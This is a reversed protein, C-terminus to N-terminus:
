GTSKLLISSPFYSADLDRTPSAVHCFALIAVQEGPVKNANIRARLASLPRERHGAVTGKSELRIPAGKGLLPM